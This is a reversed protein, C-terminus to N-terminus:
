RCAVRQEWLVRNLGWRHAQGEECGWWRIHRLVARQPWREPDKQGVGGRFVGIQGERVPNLAGPTRPNWEQIRGLGTVHFEKQESSRPEQGPKAEHPCTHVCRYSGTALRVAALAPHLPRSLAMPSPHLLCLLKSGRTPAMVPTRGNPATSGLGM